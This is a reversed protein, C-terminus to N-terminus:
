SARRSRCTARRVSPPILAQLLAALQDAVGSEAMPAARGSARERSMVLVVRARARACLLVSRSFEAEGPVAGIAHMMPRLILSLFSVAPSRLPLARYLAIGPAMGSIALLLCSM